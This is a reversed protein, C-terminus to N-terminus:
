RQRPGYRSRRAERAGGARLSREMEADSTGPAFAVILEGERHAGPALVRAQAHRMALVAEENARVPRHVTAGAAAALLIAVVAKPRM